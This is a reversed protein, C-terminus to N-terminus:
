VRSGIPKAPVGGCITLPPLDKTVVSGAAVICGAGIRVNSTVVVNAGIWVDDEVFISGCRHGQLRIPITVSSFVHDSARFVVNPGVLVDNGIHIEGGSAGITVNHNFSCSRGIVIGKSEHAYIHSGAMIVAGEGIKINSFGTIDTQPFVSVRCGCYPLSLRLFLYRVFNGGFARPVPKLIEYWFGYIRSLIYQFFIQIRNHVQM